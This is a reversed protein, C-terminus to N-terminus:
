SPTPESAVEPSLIEKLKELKEKSLGRPLDVEVTLQLFIDNNNDGGVRIKYSAGHNINPPLEFKIRTGLQPINAEVDGGELAKILDIRVTHHIMQTTSYFNQPGGFHFRFGHVNNLIEDLNINGGHFQQAFPNGGHFQHSQQPPNDYERKKDKDGLIDYASSIEKFKEELEVKKNIDTTTDPHFQKSKDRFAKKIQEENADKPVELISYYDKIKKM